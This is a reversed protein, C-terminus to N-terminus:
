SELTKSAILKQKSIHLVDFDATEVIWDGPKIEHLTRDWEQWTVFFFKGQEYTLPYQSGEHREFCCKLDKPINKLKSTEQIEVGWGSRVCKRYYRDWWFEIEKWELSISQKSM